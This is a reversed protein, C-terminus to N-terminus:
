RWDIRAHKTALDVHVTAHAFERTATLGTWAADARPPGLPRDFEPYSELMGHEAVYGWSYAFQSDPRAAVLFCALPFTVRERALQVLEAHPRKMM